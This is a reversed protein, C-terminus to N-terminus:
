GASINAIMLQPLFLVIGPFITLIAITIFDALVFPWVGKFVEELPIDPRVGNVVFCNLGIPPTLLGIEVMKVVIIGFWIPDYGLGVIAPFFVPLTLLLMGIGDMMMGLILYVFLILLLIYIRDVELSVIWDSFAAPLGSFGLFRVYILISWIITFIMVTLKSTEMLADSLDKLTMERKALALLFVIFAGVGGVETPTMWGTYIGGIIIGIVAAIGWADKLSRFREGWGVDPMAAGMEPTIMVRAVVIASYVVASLAGPIFGALLLAGISQEVIIGYIVLIASPPILAALTGGAAVVASALRPNYRYKLMEPIAIRSFVAATATSSGSVAGFAATAMVTAVALGGPLWGMWCRAAYFAGQTLGAYFALYGILIFMPLVSLAYHTSESHALFGALGTGPDWGRLVALGLLGVIGSAYAIRVGFVVLLIIAFVSIYGATYPDM